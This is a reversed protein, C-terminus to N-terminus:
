VEDVLGELIFGPAIEEKIYNEATEPTFADEDLDDVINNNLLDVTISPNNAYLTDQSLSIQRSISTTALLSNQNEDVTTQNMPLCSKPREKRAKGKSHYVVNPSTRNSSGRQPSDGQRAPSSAGNRKMSARNYQTKRLMGQFNFPADNEDGSNERAIMKLEKAPNFSTKNDIDKVPSRNEFSSEDFETEDKPPRPAQRKKLSHARESSPTKYAPPPPAPPAPAPSRKKYVSYTDYSNFDGLRESVPRLAASKLPNFDPKPSSCRRDMPMNIPDRSFPKIYLNPTDRGGGGVGHRAVNASATIKSSVTARRHLPADWSEDDSDYGSVKPAADPDCLYTTDFYPIEDLRFPLKWVSLKPPGLLEAHIQQPDIRELLVCQSTKTLSALILQNFIHVQQMFQVLDMHRAARYQLLVQYMSRMKWRKLFPRIFEATTADLKGTKACILPGYQKRVLYGRYAASSSPNPIIEHLSKLIVSQFEGKQIFLAAKETEQVNEASNQRAKALQKQLHVGMVRKALFTRMMAQVKVIKKVQVEYLRSLYEINYYRLFVKTKGIIWGDMKLRVLLLRCNDRTLEVSENFDFGLFKYRRLFEQFPIRYPFGKKGSVATDVLAMARIQQRMLESQVMNPTNDLNIRMCRVFHVGSSAASVSLSKMLELCTSRFISAQTRMKHVQSFM